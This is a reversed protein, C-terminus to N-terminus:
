NDRKYLTKEINENMTVIGYITALILNISLIWVSYNILWIPVAFIALSTVFTFMSFHKRKYLFFRIQWFFSQILNSLFTFAFLFAMSGAFFRLPNFILKAFYDSIVFPQVTPLWRIALYLAISGVLLSTINKRMDWGGKYLKHSVFKQVV